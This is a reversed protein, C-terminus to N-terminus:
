ADVNLLETWCRFHQHEYEPLLCDAGQGVPQWHIIQSRRAFWAGLVASNSITRWAYKHERGHAVRECSFRERFLTARPNTTSLPPTQPKGGAYVRKKKRASM